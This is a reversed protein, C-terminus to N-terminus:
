NFREDYPKSTLIWDEALVRSIEFQRSEAGEVRQLELTVRNKQSDKNSLSMMAADQPSGTKCYAMLTQETDPSVIRYCSWQKDNGFLGNYYTDRVANIRVQATDEHNELIEQWSPTVTRAFADFDIRWKGADDPTLLALRSRPTGDGKFHVLVGEISLDNADMNGLWGYHSIAGDTTSLEALFDAVTQPTTASGLRFGNAIKEPERIALALKVMDLAETASPSTSKTITRTEVVPKERSAMKPILWMSIAIGLTLIVVGILLLWWTTIVTKHAEDVEQQHESNPLGTGPIRAVRGIAPAGGTVRDHRQHKVSRQIIISKM